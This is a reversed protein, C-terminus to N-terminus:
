KHTSKTNVDTMKRGKKVKLNSKIKKEGRRLTLIELQREIGTSILNYSQIQPNSM